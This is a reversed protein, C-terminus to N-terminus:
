ATGREGADGPLFDPTFSMDREPVRLIIREPQCVEHTIRGDSVAQELIELHAPNDLHFVFPKGCSCKGLSITRYKERETRSREEGKNLGRAYGEEYAKNRAQALDCAQEIFKRMLQSYSTAADRKQGDLLNKLEKTLVVSITPHGKRYRYYAPPHHRTNAIGKPIGKAMHKAKSNAIPIVM